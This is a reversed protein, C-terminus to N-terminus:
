RELKSINQGTLASSVSKDMRAQAFVVTAENLQSVARKILLHDASMLTARLADMSTQIVARAAESLLDGDQELAADVAILLQNSEVEQEKLARAKMDESAFRGSDQLMRAVEADSLGYSPKVVIHSEVGSSQERASVSLLGDADIQYTVRIRAAGAVM